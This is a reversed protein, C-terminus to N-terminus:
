EPRLGMEKIAKDWRPTETDLMRKFDQPTSGILTLGQEDLNRRLGPDKLATLIADSLRALVPEPLKAPAFIGYWTLVDFDKFGSEAMTPVDAMKPHRELSSVALARLKGNQVHSQAVPLNAFMFPVHGGLVDALAASEGKYPVHTVDVGIMKKYLEGAIHQPGGQGSSAYTVNGAGKAKLEATLEAVTTAKVMDPNVVLLLPMSVMQSVPTFDALPNFPLKPYMAPAVILTSQSGLFLSYGDAPSRAVNDAAITGTAGPRNEVVVQQGLQESMKAGVLRAVVDAGGGPAFGVVVRLPKTPFDAAVALPAAGLALAAAAAGTCARVLGPLRAFPFAGVARLTTKM